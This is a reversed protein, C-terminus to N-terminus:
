LPLIKLRLCVHHVSKSHPIIECVNANEISLIPNVNRCNGQEFEDNIPPSPYNNHNNNIPYFQTQNQYYMQGQMNYNNPGSSMYKTQEM